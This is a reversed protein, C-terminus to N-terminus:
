NDYIEQTEIKPTEGIEKEEQKKNREFVERESKASLYVSFFISISEALAASFGSIYVLFSNSGIAGFVGSVVGVTSVLGDIMGLIFDKLTEASKVNHREEM